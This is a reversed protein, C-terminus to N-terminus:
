TITKDTVLSMRFFRGLAERNSHCESTASHFQAAKTWLGLSPRNVATCFESGHLQKGASHINSYINEKCLISLVGPSGGLKYRHHLVHWDLCLVDLLVKM